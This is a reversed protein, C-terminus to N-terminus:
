YTTVAGRAVTKRPRRHARAELEGLKLELHSYTLPGFTTRKGHRRLYLGEPALTIVYGEILRRVPKTLRTM